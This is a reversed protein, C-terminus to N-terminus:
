SIEHRFPTPAYGILSEFFGTNTDTNICVKFDMRDTPIIVRFNKGVLDSTRFYLHHIARMAMRHRLPTWTDKEEPTISIRDAVVHKEPDDIPAHM